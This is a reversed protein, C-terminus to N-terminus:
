VIAEMECARFEGRSIWAEDFASDAGTMLGCCADVLLTSTVDLPKSALVSQM